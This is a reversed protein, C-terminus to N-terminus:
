VAGEPDTPRKEMSQLPHELVAVQEVAVKEMWELCPSQLAFIWTQYADSKYSQGSIEQQVRIAAQINRSRM